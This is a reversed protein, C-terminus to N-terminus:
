SRKGYGPQRRRLVVGAGAGSRCMEEDQMLVKGNIIVHRIGAPYRRPEHYDAGAGIREPDIVVVDAAAGPRLVGRDPIGLLAAPMSTMRRIADEWSLARRRVVMLELFRPFTGYSRPHPLEGALPGDRALAYGDSAVCALPHQLVQVLMDEDLLFNYVQVMGRGAELVRLLAEFPEISERQAIERLSHGRWREVSGRTSGAVVLEEWGNRARAMEERLRKRVSGAQLRRLMEEEGGSIIWGPLYSKLWTRSATYPYMDYTVNVVPARGLRGEVVEKVRRGFRHSSFQFDGLGERPWRGQAMDALVEMTQRGTGPWLGGKHHSIHVPHGTVLSTLAAELVAASSGLRERAHTAYFGGRRRLVGVLFAMEEMTAYSGPTYDLGSSLGFAGERLGAALLRGMNALEDRDPPRDELGVTAARLNRHGILVAVNVNPEARRLREMYSAINDWSWDALSGIAGSHAQVYDRARGYLPAPSLGCNGVVLTTVGQRVASEARRDVLVSIESHSHLDIFGPCVLAGHADLTRGAEGGRIRGVFAIRGGRIGIDARFIPTGLGDAALGGKIVVDYTRSQQL